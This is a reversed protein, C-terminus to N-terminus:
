PPDGRQRSQALGPEVHGRLLGSVALRCAVPDHRSGRIRNRRRRGPRGPGAFAERAVGPDAVQGVGEQVADAHDDAVLVRIM